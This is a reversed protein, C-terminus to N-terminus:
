ALSGKKICDVGALLGTMRIREDLTQGMQPPLRGTVNFIHDLRRGLIKDNFFPGVKGQALVASIANIEELFAMPICEVQDMMQGLRQILRRIPKRVAAFFVLV